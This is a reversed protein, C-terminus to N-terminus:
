TKRRDRSGAAVAAGAGGGAVLLTILYPIVSWNGDFWSGTQTQLLRLLGLILLFGGVGVAVSGALGYGVFRQLGKIPELTEQKFYAVVLQWLDQVDALFGGDAAAQAGPAKAQSAKSRTAM